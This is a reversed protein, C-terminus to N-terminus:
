HECLEIERVNWDQKTFKQGVNPKVGKRLAIRGVAFTLNSVIFSTTSDKSLCVNLAIHM